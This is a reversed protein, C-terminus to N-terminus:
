SSAGILQVDGGLQVPRGAAPVSVVNLGAYRSRVGTQDGELYVTTSGGPVVTCTDPRLSFDLKGVQRSTDTDSTQDATRM